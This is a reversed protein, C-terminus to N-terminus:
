VCNINIDCELYSDIGGDVIYAAGELACHSVRLNTAIISSSHKSSEILGVSDSFCTKLVIM